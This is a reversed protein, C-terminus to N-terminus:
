IPTVGPHGTRLKVGKRGQRLKARHIVPNSQKFRVLTPCDATGIKGATMGLASGPFLSQDVDLVSDTKPKLNLGLFRSQLTHLLSFDHNSRHGSNRSDALVISDPHKRALGFPDPQLLQGSATKLPPQLGLATGQVGRISRLCPPHQM